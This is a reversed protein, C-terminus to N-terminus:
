VGSDIPGLALDYFGRVLDGAFFGGTGWFFVGGRSWSLLRWKVM